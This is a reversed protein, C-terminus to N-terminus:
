RREFEAASMGLFEAIRALDQETLYVFGKQTCCATCGAQCEFRM